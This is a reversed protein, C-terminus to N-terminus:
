DTAARAPVGAHSADSPVEGARRATATRLALAAGAGAAVPLCLALFIQAISWGAAIVAGGLMGSTLTGLRGVGSTWGVGTSRASPPYALTGIAQLAANAAPLTLGLTFVLVLLAAFGVDLVAVLVLAVIGLTWLAALVRFRDFRRLAFAVLLQGAFGGWGFQGVILGTEAADFGSQRVMLPLYNLILFVAGLGIFTCLWLLATVARLDRGLITAVAGRRESGATPVTLDVASADRNPVLTTLAARVRELHRGRALLMAPSEPVYLAFAPVLLLPAIGCVALLAPWGATPILWSSLSGGIITGAAVGSFSLTVMQARRARPTCDAVLTMLAPMVAGLGLCAVIRLTTFVPMTGTLGMAATAAGFVVTGGVVVIKRGHRDGLPGALVGGAAMAGVGLTVTATISGVSTGWDRVLQPYVFGAITIDLGEMVMALAGLTVVLRQRGSMPTVDLFDQLSVPPAPRASM